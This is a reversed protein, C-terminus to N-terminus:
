LFHQHRQTVRPRRTREMSVMPWSLFYKSLDDYERTWNLASVYDYLAMILATSIEIEGAATNAQAFLADSVLVRIKLNSIRHKQEESMGNRLIPLIQSNAWYRGLNQWRQQYAGLLFKAAALEIANLPEGWSKTLRTQALLDLAKRIDAPQPVLGIETLAPIPAASHQPAMAGTPKFPSAYLQYDDDRWRTVVALLRALLQRDIAAYKAQASHLADGQLVEGAPLGRQVKAM